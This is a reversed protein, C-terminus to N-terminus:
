SWHIGSPIFVVYQWNRTKRVLVLAELHDSTRLSKGIVYIRLILVNNFRNLRFKNSELFHQTVYM